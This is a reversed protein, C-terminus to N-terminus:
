DEMEIIRYLVSDLSADGILHKISFCKGEDKVVSNRTWRIEGDWYRDSIAGVEKMPRTSVSGMGYSSGPMTSSLGDAPLDALTTVQSTSVVVPPRPKKAPSPQSAADTSNSASLQRKRVRSLREAEMQARSLGGFILSPRVVDPSAADTDTAAALAIDAAAAGSTSPHDPQSSREVKSIIRRAPLSPPSLDNSTITRSSSSAGARSPGSQSSQRSAEIARRLDANFREEEESDIDDSAPPKPSPPALSAALARRRRPM